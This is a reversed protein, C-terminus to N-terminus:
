STVGHLPVSPRRKGCSVLLEWDKISLSLFVSMTQAAATAVKCNSKNNDDVNNSLSEEDCKITDFINNNKKTKNKKLFMSFFRYVLHETCEDNVQLSTNDSFWVLAFSLSRSYCFTYFVCTLTITHEQLVRINLKTNLPWNRTCWQIFTRLPSLACLLLDLDLWLLGSVAACCEMWSSIWM